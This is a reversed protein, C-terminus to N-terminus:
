RDDTLNVLQNQTMLKDYYIWRKMRGSFRQYGSDMDMGHLPQFEFRSINRYSIVNTNTSETAVGGSGVRIRNTSGTVDWSMADRWTKYYFASNGTGHRDGPGSDPSSNPGFASMHNSGTDASDGHAVAYAGPYSAHAYGSSIM